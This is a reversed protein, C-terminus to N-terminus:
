SKRGEGTGDKFRIIEQKKFFDYKGRSFLEPDMRKLMNWVQKQTPEKIAKYCKQYDALDLKIKGSTFALAHKFAQERQKQKSLSKRQTSAPSNNLLKSAFLEKKDCYINCAHILKPSVWMGTEDIPYYTKGDNSYSSVLIAKDKTLGRVLTCQNSTTLIGDGPVELNIIEEHEYPDMIPKVGDSVDAGYMETDFYIPLKNCSAAFLITHLNAEQLEGNMGLATSLDAMYVKDPLNDLDIKLM